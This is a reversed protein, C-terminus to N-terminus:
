RFHSSAFGRYLRDNRLKDNLATMKRIVHQPPPSVRFWRAQLNVMRQWTKFDRKKKARLPYREFHPLVSRMISYLDSVCFVACPAVNPTGNIYVNGCDFYDRLWRLISIDDARLNIGFRPSYNQRDKVAVMFWGEGDILGSVYGGATDDVFNRPFWVHRAKKTMGLKTLKQRISRMSRGPFLGELEESFASPGIEKLKALDHSTWTSDRM